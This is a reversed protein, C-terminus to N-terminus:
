SGPVPTEYRDERRTTFSPKIEGVGETTSWLRRPWRLLMASSSKPRAPRQSAARSMFFTSRTTLLLVVEEEGEEEEQGEESEESEEGHQGGLLSHTAIRATRISTCQVRNTGCCDFFDSDRQPLTFSFSAHADRRSASTPIIARAHSYIMRSCASMAAFNESHLFDKHFPSKKSPENTARDLLRADAHSSRIHSTIAIRREIRNRACRFKKQVSRALPRERLRFRAEFARIPTSHNARVTTRSRTTPM